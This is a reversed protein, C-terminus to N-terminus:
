AQQRSYQLSRHQEHAQRTIPLTAAAAAPCSLLNRCRCLLTFQSPAAISRNRTNPTNICRASTLSKQIEIVAPSTAQCGNCQVCCITCNIWQKAHKYFEAFETNVVAQPPPQRTYLRSLNLLNCAAAIAAASHGKIVDVVSGARSRGLM